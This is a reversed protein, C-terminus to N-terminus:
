LKPVPADAGPGSGYQGHGGAKQQALALVLAVRGAVADVADVGSVQGRASSDTRLAAVIGGPAASGSAGGVAVGRGATRLATM